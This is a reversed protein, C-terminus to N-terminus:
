IYNLKIKWMKKIRTMTRLMCFGKVRDDGKLTGYLNMIEHAEEANDCYYGNEFSKVYPHALEIGEVLELKQVLLRLKSEVMGSYKLHETYTSRTAAVICM